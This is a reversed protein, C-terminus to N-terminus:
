YFVLFFVSVLLYINILSIISTSHSPTPPEISRQRFMESIEQEVSIVSSKGEDQLVDGNAFCYKTKENKYKNVDSLSQSSTRCKATCFDFSGQQRTLRLVRDTEPISAILDRYKPHLCCSVCHEYIQCCSVTMNCRECSAPPDLNSTVSKCCKSTANVDRRLCVIGNSDTVMLAGQKTHQCASTDNQNNREQQHKAKAPIEMQQLTSVQGLESGLVVNLMVAAFFLLSFIFIVLLMWRLVRRRGDRRFLFRDIIEDWKDAQKLTDIEMQKEELFELERLKVISMPKKLKTSPSELM